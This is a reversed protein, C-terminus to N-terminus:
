LLKTTTTPRSSTTITTTTPTITTTTTTTHANATMQLRVEDADDCPRGEASTRVVDSAPSTPCSAPMVSREAPKVPFAGAAVSDRSRDDDAQKGTVDDGCDLLLSTSPKSQTIVDDHQQQQQQQLQCERSDDDVAHHSASNDDVLSM